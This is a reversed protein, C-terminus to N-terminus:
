RCRCPGALRDRSVEAARRFAVRQLHRQRARVGPALRELDLDADAEHGLLLAACEIAYTVTVKLSAAPSRTAPPPPRRAAGTQCTRGRRDRWSLSGRASSQTPRGYASARCQRCPHRSPYPYRSRRRRADIAQERPMRRRVASASPALSASVIKRASARSSSDAGPRRPPARGGDRRPRRRALVEDGDVQELAVPPEAVQTGRASRGGPTLQTALM